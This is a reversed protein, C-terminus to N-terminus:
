LAKRSHTGSRAVFIEGSELLGMHAIGIIYGAEMGELGERLGCKPCSRWRLRFSPMDFTVDFSLDKWLYLVM